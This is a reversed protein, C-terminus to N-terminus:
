QHAAKHSTQQDASLITGTVNKAALSKWAWRGLMAMEVGVASIGIYQIPFLIAMLILVIFPKPLV